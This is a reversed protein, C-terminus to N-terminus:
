FSLDEFSSLAAKAGEGMSIIIQKHPTTTVDGAAYIGKSSTRASDDIIIEGFKNMEVVGELFSSNPVLGIQVFVGDLEVEQFQQNERKEYKLSTVREGNGLVESTRANTIIKINDMSELKKILVDDAKLKEAFEFLIVESVINSLDIAAEVGSNGGGIVAVKKGKYYPGDCHPCFAVGRGLYEKEGPINLERWKAGTAVIISKAKMKERTNLLVERVAGTGVKLVRRHELIEIEYEQMHKYLQSSLEVGKTFPVSIFNEIGQTEQLQGGIRDALIVTKLGKRASYIAASAGAPGGGIIAVDFEGLDKDEQDEFNHGFLEELKFLLEGLSSKGSQIFNEDSIVSPVGQIKLSEIKKEFFEGDRMEHSLNSNLIAFLNLSQVVEPCNECSLSIYTQLNINGKLGQIRKIISNDPLKGRGDSNLIALILSSFEHGGPIGSFSVGNREGKYKLYFHPYNSIMGDEEVQIYQSTSAVETLLDVLEQQKEHGSSLYSLVVENELKKFVSKLQQKISLDLM